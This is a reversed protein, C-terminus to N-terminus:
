RWSDIVSPAGIYDYGKELFLKLQDAGGLPIGDDQITLCYPTHFYRALNLLMDESLSHIDGVVLMDSEFVNVWNKYREAFARIRDSVRDTVLAVTCLGLRNWSHLIAFEAFDFDDEDECFSYCVFSVAAAFESVLFSRRRLAPLNLREFQALWTRAEVRRFDFDAKM